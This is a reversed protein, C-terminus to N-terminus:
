VLGLLQLKCIGFLEGNDAEKKTDDLASVIDPSSEVQGDKVLKVTM